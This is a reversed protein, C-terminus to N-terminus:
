RPSVTIETVDALLNGSVYEQWASIPWIFGTSMIKLALPVDIIIEKETANSLNSITRIYKRGVWGIWGTIYIFMLGPIIFEVSHSWRGDTILHPLGDKGCLLGSDSYRKFRQQTRKIQQELALSPPSGAEYKKLRNELKKISIEMRKTFVSSENCPILGAVDAFVTIPNFFTLALFVMLLKKFQIM